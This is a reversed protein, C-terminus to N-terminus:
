TNSRLSKCRNSPSRFREDSPRRIRIQFAPPKPSLRLSHTGPFANGSILARRRALLPTKGLGADYTAFNTAKSATVSLRGRLRSAVTPCPGSGQSIVCCRNTLFPPSGHGIKVTLAPQELCSEHTLSGHHVCNGPCSGSYAGSRLPVSCLGAWLPGPKGKASVREKMQGALQGISICIGRQLPGNRAGRPRPETRYHCRFDCIMSGDFRALLAHQPQDVFQVHQGCGDMNGHAQQLQAAVGIAAHAVEGVGNRDVGTQAGLHQPQGIGGVEGRLRGM